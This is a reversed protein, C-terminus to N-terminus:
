KESVESGNKLVKNERLNWSKTKKQKKEPNKQLYIFHIKQIINTWFM